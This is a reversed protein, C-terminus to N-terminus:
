RGCRERVREFVPKAQELPMTGLNFFFRTDPRAGDLFSYADQEGIWAQILVTHGSFTDIAPQPGPPHQFVRNLARLHPIKRFSAYQHDATACCHMCMGGFARSMEVLSPLCFEEFMDVSLAGAEDESLWCGLEPGAWTGGPCHSMNCAPFERQFAKLFSTLLRQCKAVLRLVAAPEDYLAVLLNEKRWILAAIDFPSQVDPVGISVGRGLETQVLKGLEMIRALTPVNHFDPEPLADAEAATEVAPLACANTEMGEYVHLRCGFAAAFVGTNTNLGVFPVGDDQLALTKDLMAQYRAVAWPVWAKVPLASCTFDARPGCPAFVPDVVIGHGQFAGAFLSTQFQKNREILDAM